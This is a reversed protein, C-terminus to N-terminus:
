YDTCGNNQVYQSWRCYVAAVMAGAEARVSDEADSAEGVWESKSGEETEPMIGEVQLAGHVKAKGAGRLAAQSIPLFQVRSSQLDKLLKM